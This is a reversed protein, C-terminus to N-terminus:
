FRYGIAVTSSKRKGVGFEAMIEISQNIETRIGISTNWPLSTSEKVNFRVNKLPFTMIKDLDGKLTQDIKQFMGGVWFATKTGWIDFQYGIRPSVVMATIGGEIVDLSTKTYNFDVLSFFNKYGGALTMGVGYTVGKYKLSFDYQSKQKFFNIDLKASSHGRTEGVIGYLNLFPFVWLDAKVLKSQNSTKAKNVKLTVIKKLSDLSLNGRTLNLSNINVDQSMDVYIFNIGMPKPLEYGQERVTDGFIPFFDEQKKQTKLEECLSITSFVIFLLTLYIARKM